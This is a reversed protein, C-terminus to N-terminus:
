RRRHARQLAPRATGPDGCADTVPLSCFNRTCAFAAPGDPYDPYDVDPNSSSARASTGGNPASTPSRIPLRAPMSRPAARITRPASSRDCAGARQATGGRGAARRAPLCLGRAGGALRSLGHRGRRDRSLACRRFLLRAPHLLADGRCQGRAAQDAQASAPRRALGLRLLRRDQPRHLHGAIFDGTAIAAALWQTRGDLSAAGPASRGDRCQRCSLSRRRRARCPPLRGGPLARERLAWDAAAVALSLAEERRDLRLLGLLGQIAQGTERCIAAPRSRAPGRGHGDLCLLRRGPRRANSKLFGFIVTPPPAIPRAREFLVAARAYASLAAQQAFM